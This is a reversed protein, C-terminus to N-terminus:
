KLLAMKRIATGGAAVARYFYIGSAVREGRNDAGNWEFTIYGPQSYGSWQRITQGMINYITVVYDSATPLALEFTTSPNFPNPYNQTLEMTRPLVQSSIVTGLVRGYYDGLDVETLRLAGGDPTPIELLDGAGANIKRGAEFSCILVRLKNDDTFSFKLDMDGAGEALIPDGPKVADYEFIMFAAGIDYDSNITVRVNDGADICDIAVTKDGPLPKPYPNADGTIVRILYILDAISLTTGDANIDSAAIQGPISINFASLGYIFYNSYVVADAIEYKIGNLNLDGRDDISDPHIICLEGNHFTVCRIPEYKNGSLCEDPAGIWQPRDDEPYDADNFEDWVINGRPGYIIQDMFLYQGTPDSFTNDGCDFWFFGIPINHGGYNQNGSVRFTMSAIVGDPRLQEEPPYHPGNNIDAISTLRLLGSPCEGSCNGTAGYRYTFFEWRDIAVGIDARAFNLVAADYTILLDFGGISNETNAVVDVTPISGSSVCGPGVISIEVCTSCVPTPVVDLCFNEFVTDCADTAKFKFCYRASDNTPPKFYLEGCNSVPDFVFEGNGSDLAMELVDYDPDSVCIDYVVVTSTDSECRAIMELEPLDIVPPKNRRMHVPIDRSRSAGCSDTAIITLTCEIDEVVELCVQKNVADYYAEPCDGIVVVREINNDPDGVEVRACHTYPRCFIGEITEESIILPPRNMVATVIFSCSDVGCATSDIITITDVRDGDINYCITGLDPSYIIFEPRVTINSGADGIELCLQGPECVTVTTDNPCRPDPQPAELITIEAEVTDAEGCIDTAIARLNCSGFGAPM